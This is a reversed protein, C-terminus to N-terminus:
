TTRIYKKFFDLRLFNSPNKKSIFWLLLFAICFGIVCTMSTAIAAGIAAYKPILSVNLVISMIAIVAAFLSLITFAGKKIFYPAMLSSMPLFWASIMLIRFINVSPLFRVGGYILLLPKAILMLFVVIAGWVYFGFRLSRITVEYDDNSHIVRPYLVQQFTGPIIMAYTALALAVAFIGAEAKGSYRFVILQNIKLYVFTSIIGIHSKLGAILLGKAMDKSFHGFILRSKLATNFIMFLSVFQVIIMNLIIFKITIFGFFYGSSIIITNIVAQGIGIQASFRINGLAQFFVMLNATLMSFILFINLLFLFEMTKLSVQKPWYFVFFTLAFVALLAYIVSLISITVFKTRDDDGHTVRNAFHYTATNIGIGFIVIFLAVWTQMEALTGRGSPGLSRNILGGTILGTAM